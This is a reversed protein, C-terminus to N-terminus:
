SVATSKPHCKKNSSSLSGIVGSIHGFFFVFVRVTETLEHHPSRKELSVVM